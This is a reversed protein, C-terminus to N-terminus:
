SQLETMSAEFKLDLSPQLFVVMMNTKKVSLLFFEVMLWRVDFVINGDEKTEASILSVFPHFGISAAKIVCQQFKNPIKTPYL